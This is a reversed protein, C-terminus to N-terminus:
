HGEFADSIQQIILADGPVLCIFLLPTIIFFFFYEGGLSIGGPVTAHIYFL